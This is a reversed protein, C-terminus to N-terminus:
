AYVTQGITQSPSLPPAPLAYHWERDPLWSEPNRTVGTLAAQGVERGHLHAAIPEELLGSAM